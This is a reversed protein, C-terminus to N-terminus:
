LAQGVLLLSVCVSQGKELVSIMWCPSEPRLTTSSPSIQTHHGIYFPYAIKIAYALWLSGFRWRCDFWESVLISHPSVASNSALYSCLFFPPSHMRAHVVIVELTVDLCSAYPVNGIRYQEDTLMVPFHFLLISYSLM